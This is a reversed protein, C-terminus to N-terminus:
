LMEKCSLHQSHTKKDRKYTIELISDNNVLLDIIETMQMKMVDEGNMTLIIDGLNLGKLDAESGIFIGSIKIGNIEKRRDICIIGPGTLKMREFRRKNRLTFIKSSKADIMFNFKNILEIGILGIPEQKSPYVSFPSVNDLSCYVLPNTFDHDFINVKSRLPFFGNSKGYLHFHTAKYDVRDKITDLKFKEVTEKSLTIDVQSGTDFLFPGSIRIGNMFITANIIIQYNRIELPHQAYGKYTTSLDTCETYKFTSDDFNLGFSSNCFYSIGLIGNTSDGLYESLNMIDIENNHFKLPFSNIKFNVQDQFNSLLSFRENNDIKNRKFSSDITLFQCGTDFLFKGVISDNFNILLKISRDKESFKTTFISCHNESPITKENNCSILLFLIYANFRVAKNNFFCKILPTYLKM